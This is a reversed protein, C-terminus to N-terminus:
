KPHRHTTIERDRRRMEELVVPHWTGDREDEATYNQRAWTRLRIEEIVDVDSREEAVIMSM